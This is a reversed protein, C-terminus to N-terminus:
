AVAAQFRDSPAEEFFLRTPEWSGVHLRQWHTEAALSHVLAAGFVRVPPRSVRAFEGSVGPSLWDPIGGVAFGVASLGVSAAEISVTGFPEPWISFVALVDAKRREAGRFSSYLWALFETPL